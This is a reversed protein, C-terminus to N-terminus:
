RAEVLATCAKPVPWSYEGDYYPFRTKWLNYIAMCFCCYFLCTVVVAAAVSSGLPEFAFETTVTRSWEVMRCRPLASLLLCEILQCQGAVGEIHLTTAQRLAM